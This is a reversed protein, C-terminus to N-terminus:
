SSYSECNADLYKDAANTKDRCFGGVNIYNTACELCVAGDEKEAKVCNPLNTDNPAATSDLCKYDATIINGAACARCVHKGDVFGYRECNPITYTAALAGNLYYNNSPSNANATNKEILCVTKDLNEDDKTIKYM